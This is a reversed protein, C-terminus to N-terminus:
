VRILGHSGKLWWLPTIKRIRKAPLREWFIHIVPSSVVRQPQFIQQNSVIIDVKVDWGVVPLDENIIREENICAAVLAGSQLAGMELLIAISLDFFGFGDGLRNGSSDVAAADTVLLSVSLSEIEARTLRKGAAAFGQMSVSHPIKQFPISYPNFLYFGDKLGPAPIILEKGDLLCNIRVQQLAPVPSVFLQRAGRYAPDRRLLEAARGDVQQARSAFEKRLAEKAQQVAPLNIDCDIV